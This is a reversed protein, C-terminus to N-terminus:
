SKGADALQAMSQRHQRRYELPSMGHQRCFANTLHSCDFFGLRYAIEGVPMDTHALLRQVELMRCRGVYERLSEGGCSKFYSGVYTQSMGFKQGLAKAQLLEPESLHSRIYQLMLMYKDHPEPQLPQGTVVPLLSRLCVHLISCLLWGGLRDSGPLAAGYESVIGTVLLAVLERDKDNMIATLEGDPANYLLDKEQRTFYSDIYNDSFRMYVIKSCEALKYIHSVSPRVLFLDGASFRVEGQQAVFTGSGSVVSSLEFFSHSHEPMPFTDYERVLIDFSHFLNERKM